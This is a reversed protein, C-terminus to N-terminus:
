LMWRRSFGQVSIQRSRGREEWGSRIYYSYFPEMLTIRETTWPVHVITIYQRGENTDEFLKHAAEAAEKEAFIWM